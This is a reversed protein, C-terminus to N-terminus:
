THRRVLSPMWRMSRLLVISFSLIAARMMTAISFGLSMTAMLVRGKPWRATSFNACTPAHRTSGAGARAACHKSCRILATRRRM